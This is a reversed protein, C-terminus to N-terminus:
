DCCANENEGKILLGGRVSGYWGPVQLASILAMAEAARSEAQNVVVCDALNERTIVRAAIEPTVVSDESADALAAYREPRHAAQKVTRGVGSLGVVQIVRNSEPPIVPEHAEHAKLPLRKSGDAEVLVYEALKKLRAFSIGCSGLKGNMAPSGLCVLPAKKLAHIVAAEDPDLLTPIGKPPYIKTTTCLVVTHAQSLEQALACLLTTKGGSGIVATVGPLINLTQCLM